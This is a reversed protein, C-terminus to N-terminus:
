ASTVRSCGSAGPWHTAHRPSAPARAFESSAARREASCLRTAGLPPCPELEVLMLGGCRHVLAEWEAPPAPQRLRVAITDTPPDARLLTALRRASPDDLVQRIPGGILEQPTSRLVIAANESVAALRLDARTVAFLMGHPQISGPSHIPERACADLQAALDFSKTM